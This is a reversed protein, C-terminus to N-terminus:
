LADAPIDNISLLHNHVFNPCIALLRQSFQDGNLKKFHQHYPLRVVLPWTQLLCIYLISKSKKLDQSYYHFFVEYTITRLTCIVSILVDVGQNRRFRCADFCKGLIFLTVGKLKATVQAPM